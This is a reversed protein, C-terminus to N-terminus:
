QRPIILQPLEESSEGPEEAVDRSGRLFIGESDDVALSKTPSAEPTELGEVPKSDVPQSTAALQKLQALEQSIARQGPDEDAISRIRAVYDAEPGEFHALDLLENAAGDFGRFKQFTGALLLRDASLPREALWNWLETGHTRAREATQQGYLEDASVWARARDNTISLATKLHQAAAPFNKMAIQLLAMRIWPSRRDPARQIADRYNEEASVYDEKRFAADGQSQYRLSNIKDALSSVKDGRPLVEFENLLPADRDIMPPVEPVPEDPVDPMPAAFPLPAPAIHDLMRPDIMTYSATSPVSPRMSLNMSIITPVLISGPYQNTVGIYPMPTVLWPNWPMVQGTFPDVTLPPAVQPLGGLYGYAPFAGHGLYGGHWHPDALGFGSGYLFPTAGYAPYPVIAHAYLGNSLHHAGHPTRVVGAVSRGNSYTASSTGFRSVGAAYQGNVLNGGGYYGRGPNFHRPDIGGYDRHHRQAIVTSCAPGMVLFLAFLRIGLATNSLTRSKM